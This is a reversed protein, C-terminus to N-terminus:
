TDFRGRAPYAGSATHRACRRTFRGRAMRAPHFTRPTAPRSSSAAVTRRSLRRMVGSSIASSRTSQQARSPALRRRGPAPRSPATRRPGPKSAASRRDRCTVPPPPMFVEFASTGLDAPREIHVLDNFDGGPRHAPPREGPMKVELRDTAFGCGLESRRTGARSVDTSAELSAKPDLSHFGIV